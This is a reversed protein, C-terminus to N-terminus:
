GNKLKLYTDDETQKTIQYGNSFLHNILKYYKFGFTQNTGDLHKHEFIIEKPKIKNLDIGQLVEYDHGETDVSLIEISTISHEVIITNLTKAEIEIKETNINLNHNRTHHLLVSTLQNAWSPSEDNVIPKYLTITHDKDSCGLNLFTFNNKPYKTNYNEKLLEFYDKVPEIFVCFGNLDIENFIYDNPTNGIHCGVQLLECNM